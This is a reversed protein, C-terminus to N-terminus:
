RSINQATRGCSLNNHAAMSCWRITLKSMSQLTIMLSSNAYILRRRLCSMMQLPRNSLHKAM